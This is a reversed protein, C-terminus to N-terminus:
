LILTHEHNKLLDLPNNTITFKFNDKITINRQTISQQCVYVQTIDYLELCNLNKLFNKIAVQQTNEDASLHYVGDDMFILTIPVGLSSLGLALEISEQSLSNDFPAHSIVIIM